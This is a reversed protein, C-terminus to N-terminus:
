PSAMPHDPGQITRILDFVDKDEMGKLTASLGGEGKNLAELADPAGPKNLLALLGSIADDIQEPTGYTLKGLFNIAQTSPDGRTYQQTTVTPSSFAEPAAQPDIRSDYMSQGIIGLLDKWSDSLDNFNYEVDEAEAAVKELQPAADEYGSTNGVVKAALEIDEQTMDITTSGDIGEVPIETITGASVPLSLALGAFLKALNAKLGEELVEEEENLFKNWNEMILKM